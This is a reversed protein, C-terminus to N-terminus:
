NSKNPLIKSENENNAGGLAKTVTSTDRNIVNAIQKHTFNKNYLFNIIERRVFNLEDSQRASRIEDETIDWKDGIWHFSDSVVKLQKVNLDSNSQALEIFVRMPMFVFPDERNAKLILIDSGSLWNVLTKWLSKARSKVETQLHLNSAYIDIDGGNGQYHMAGSLPVRECTINHSQMLAVMEREVRSGKNRQMKGM